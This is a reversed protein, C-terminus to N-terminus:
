PAAPQSFTAPLQRRSKCAAPIISSSSSSKHEMASGSSSAAPASSSHACYKHEELKAASSSSASTSTSSSAPMSSSTPSATFDGCPFHKVTLRRSSRWVAELFALDICHHHHELLQYASFQEPIIKSYAPLYAEIFQKWGYWHIPIQKIRRKGNILHTTFSESAWVQRHGKM